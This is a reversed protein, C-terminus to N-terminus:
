ETEERARRKAEEILEVLSLIKPKMPRNFVKQWEEPKLESRLFDEVMFHEYWCDIIRFCPLGRNEVRCYSFNIHHGLRPCRVPDDEGPPTSDRKM